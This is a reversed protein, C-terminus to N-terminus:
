AYRKLKERLDEPIKRNLHPVVLCFLQRIESEEERSRTLEPVRIGSKHEATQQGGTFIDLNPSTVGSRVYYDHMRFEFSQVTKSETDRWVTLLIDGSGHYLTTTLGQEKERVLNPDGAKLGEGIAVPELVQLYSKRAEFDAFKLELGLTTQDADSRVHAVQASTSLIYDDLNLELQGTEGSTAGLVSAIEISVGSSSMNIMRSSYLRGNLKFIAILPSEPSVLYRKAHRKEQQTATERTFNLIRKFFSM